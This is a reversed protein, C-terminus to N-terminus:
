VLVTVARTEGDFAVFLVTVQSLELLLIAVTDFPFIVPTLAPVTVIVAVAPPFDALTSTITLAPLVVLQM